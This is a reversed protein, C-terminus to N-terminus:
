GYEEEIPHLPTHLRVQQEVDVIHSNNQKWAIPMAMVIMALLIVSVLWVTGESSQTYPTRDRVYREPCSARAVGLRENDLDFVMNKRQMFSAGLVFNTKTPRFALCREMEGRSGNLKAALYLYEEPYWTVNLRSGLAVNIPPFNSLEVNRHWCTGALGLVNELARYIEGYTREPFYTLTSGTDVLASYHAHLPSDQVQIGTVEVSYRLTVDMPTWQIPEKHLAHNYGGFQMYGGHLAFCLAFTNKGDEIAPSKQLQEQNTEAMGTIDDITATSNAESAAESIRETPQGTPSEALLAHAATPFRSSMAMPGFGFIGDAKQTVFMKTERSHCGLLSSNNSAVVTVNPGISTDRHRLRLVDRFWAGSISGGEVYGQSYVCKADSCIGLGECDRCSVWDATESRAIDFLPDIHNGCHPCPRCPFSVVSSGTDVIASVVQAPTGILVDVFYYGYKYIDGYIFASHFGFASTPFLFWM